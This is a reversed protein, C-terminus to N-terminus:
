WNSFPSKGHNAYVSYGDAFQLAPEGDADLLSEADFSLKSPRNCVICINEYQFLFGCNQILQQIVIWKKRDHHLKLVSICFDFLCAWGAWEAPRSICSTFYSIESFDLGPSNKELDTLLQHKLCTIVSHPFYCPQPKDSTSYYPFETHITQNRLRIFFKYDLQQTLSHQIHDFVRKSFKTSVNRGLYSKFNKIRTAKQIAAFPNDYLLIEPESYGSISYAANIIETIRVRDISEIQNQILRWKERYGPILAEQEDTLEAVIKRNSM